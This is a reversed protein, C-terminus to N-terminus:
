ALAKELGQLCEKMFSAYFPDLQATAEPTIEEAEANWKVKTKDDGASELVWTGYCGKAPIAAMDKIRYAMRYAEPEFIELTEEAEGAMSMVIRVAGVGLGKVTVWKVSPM